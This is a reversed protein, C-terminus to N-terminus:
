ISTVNCHLIGIHPILLLYWTIWLSLVFNFYVLLYFLCMLFLAQFRCTDVEKVFCSCYIHLTPVPCTMGFNWNIQGLQKLSDKGLNSWDFALVAQPQCTLSSVLLNYMYIYTLSVLLNYMYIYTFKKLYCFLLHPIIILSVAIWVNCTVALSKVFSLSWVTPCSM